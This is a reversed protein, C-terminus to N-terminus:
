KRFIGQEVQMARHLEKHTGLVTQTAVGIKVGKETLEKVAANFKATATTDGGDGGNNQTIKSKGLFATAAAESDVKVQALLATKETKLEAIKRTVARSIRLAARMMAPKTEDDSKKDVDTVGADSEMTAAASNEADESAKDHGKIASRLMEKGEPTSCVEKLDDISIAMTATNTTRKFLATTAAGQPVLDGARFNQPICLPDAKDYSFVVSFCNDEPNNAAGWMIDTRKTGEKFYADAILDGQADKRFAKLAGIRANMEVSDANPQDQAGFWEHTEHIPIARNGAHSLLADIHASTIQVSKQGDESDFHAMKGLEMLKVGRLIGNEADIASAGSVANRLIATLLARKSM